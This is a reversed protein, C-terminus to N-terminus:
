RLENCNPSRCNAKLGGSGGEVIDVYGSSAFAFVVSFALRFINSAIYIESNDTLCPRTPRVTVTVDAFL